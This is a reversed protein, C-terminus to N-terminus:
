PIYYGKIVPSNIKIKRGFTLTCKEYNAESELYVYESDYHDVIGVHGAKSEFTVIVAGKTPVKSNIPWNRAAGVSKTYGIKSKVYNVCSCQGTKKSPTKPTTKTESKPKTPTPKIEKHFDEPLPSLVIKPQIDTEILPKNLLKSPEAKTYNIPIFWLIIVLLLAYNRM